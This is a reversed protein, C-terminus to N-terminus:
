IIVAWFEAARNRLSEIFFLGSTQFTSDMQHKIARFNAEVVNNLALPPELLGFGFVIQVCKAHVLLFYLSGVCCIVIVYLYEM